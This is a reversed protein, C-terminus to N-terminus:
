GLVQSEPELESNYPFIGGLWWPTNLGCKETYSGGQQRVGCMPPMLRGPNKHPLWEVQPARMWLLNYGLVMTRDLAVPQAKTADRAHASEQSRTQNQLIPCPIRGTQGGHAPPTTEEAVLKAAFASPGGSLRVATSSLPPALSRRSASV